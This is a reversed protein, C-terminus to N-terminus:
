DFHNNPHSTEKPFIYSPLMHKQEEVFTIPGKGFPLWFDKVLGAPCLLHVWM